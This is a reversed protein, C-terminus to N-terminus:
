IRCCIKDLPITTPKSEITNTKFSEAMVKLVINLYHLGNRIINM